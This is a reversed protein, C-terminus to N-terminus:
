PQPTSASPAPAPASAPAPSPAAPAPAAPAAPAPTAPAPAPKVAPPAPIVRKHKPVADPLVLPGKQGCGLMAGTLCILVALQAIKM